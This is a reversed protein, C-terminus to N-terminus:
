KYVLASSLQNLKIPIEMQGGGMSVQITVSMTDANLIQGRYKRGIVTELQATSNIYNKLEAAPVSVFAMQPAQEQVEEAQAVPETNMEARSRMLDRAVTDKNWNMSMDNIKNGEVYIELGLIFPWDNPKYMDIYEVGVASEPNINVTIMAGDALYAKYADFLEDSFSVNANTLFNRLQEMHHDVYAAYEVGSQQACYEILRKNYGLDRTEFQFSNVKNDPNAFDAYTNINPITTRFSYSAMDHVVIDFVIDIKSLDKSYTYDMNLSADLEDYKLKRSFDNDIDEVEGCGQASARNYARNLLTSRAEAVDNVMDLNIRAHNVKFQLKPFIQRSNIYDQLQLYDMVSNLRMEVSGIDMDFGNAASINVKNISISGDMPNQFSDYSIQLFPQIATIISDVGKKTQYYIYFYGSTAITIVLVFLGIIVKKM